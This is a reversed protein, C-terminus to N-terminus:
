AVRGFSSKGPFRLIDEAPPIKASQYHQQKFYARAHPELIVGTSTWRRIRLTRSCEACLWFYRSPAACVPFGCDGRILRESPPVEMELLSLTGNQLDLAEKCCSPNACQM